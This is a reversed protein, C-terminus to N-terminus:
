SLRSVRQYARTTLACARRHVAQLENAIPRARVVSHPAPEGTCPKCGNM